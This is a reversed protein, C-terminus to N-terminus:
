IVRIGWDFINFDKISQIQTEQDEPVSAIKTGLCIHCREFGKDQKVLLDGMRAMGSPIKVAGEKIIAESIPLPYKAQFSIAGKKTKYKKYAKKLLDMGHVQDVYKLVFTNCDNSGWVFSNGTEQEIFDITELDKM